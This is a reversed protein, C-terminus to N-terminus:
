VVQAVDSVETLKAPVCQCFALGAAFDAAFSQAVLSEDVTITVVGDPSIDATGVVPGDSGIRVPVGTKSVGLVTRVTTSVTQM